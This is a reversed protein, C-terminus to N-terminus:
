TVWLLQTYSYETYYAGREARCAYVGTHKVAAPSVTYSGGAGRSSDSLLEHDDRFWSFTWGRSSSRVVCVLTLSDGEALWNQAINLVAQAR